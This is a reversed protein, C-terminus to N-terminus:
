FISTCVIKLFRQRKGNDTSAIAAKRKKASAKGNVHLLEETDPEISAVGATTDEDPQEDTGVASTKKANSM